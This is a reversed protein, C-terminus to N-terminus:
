KRSCANWRLTNALLSRPKTSQAAQSQARFKKERLFKRKYVTYIKRQLSFFFILFFFVLSVGAFYAGEGLGLRLWYAGVIAGVCQAAIYVLTRPLTALGTFFTALTILPNLHAGSAPAAAYIFLSLALLNIMGAYLPITIPSLMAPQAAAFSSLGSAVGGTTFVLM